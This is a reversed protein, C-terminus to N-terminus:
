ARAYNGGGGGQHPRPHPRSPLVVAKEFFEWGWKPPVSDREAMPNAKRQRMQEAKGLYFYTEAHAQLGLAAQLDAEAQDLDGSHVGLIGRARRAAARTAGTLAATSASGHPSM